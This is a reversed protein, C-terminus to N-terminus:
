ASPGHAVGGTGEAGGIQRRDSRGRDGEEKEGLVKPGREM